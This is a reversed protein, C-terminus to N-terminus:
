IGLLFKDIHIDQIEWFWVKLNLEPLRFVFFFLIAKISNLLSVEPSFSM